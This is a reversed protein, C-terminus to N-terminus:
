ISDINGRTKLMLQLQNRRPGVAIGSALPRKKRRSIPLPANLSTLIPFNQASHINQNSGSGDTVQLFKLTGGVRVVDEFITGFTDLTQQTAQEDRGYLDRTEIIVSCQGVKSLVLTALSTWEALSHQKEFAQINGLYTDQSLIAPVYQIAQYILSMLVKSLSTTASSGTPSALYWFVPFSKSKLLSIIEVLMDKVRVEARPGANVIFMSSGSANIWEKLRQIILTTDRGPQQWSPRRRAFSNCICLLEEPLPNPRMSELIHSSQIDGIHPRMDSMNAKISIM